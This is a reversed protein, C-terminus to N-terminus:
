ERVQGSTPIIELLELLAEKYQAQSRADGYSKSLLGSETTGSLIGIVAKRLATIIREALESPLSGVALGSYWEAREFAESMEAVETNRALTDDLVQRFPWGAKLWTDDSKDSFSAFGSM